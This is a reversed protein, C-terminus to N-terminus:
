GDRVEFRDRVRAGEVIEGRPGGADRELRAARLGPTSVLAPGEAGRPSLRRRAREHADPNSEPDDVGIFVNEFM